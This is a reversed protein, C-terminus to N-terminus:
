SVGDRLPPAIDLAGAAAEEHQLLAWWARACEPSARVAASLHVRAGRAAIPSGGGPQTYARLDHEWGRQLAASSTGPAAPKVQLTPPHALPHAAHCVGSLHLPAKM